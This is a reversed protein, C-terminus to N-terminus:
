LVEAATSICSNLEVCAFYQAFQPGPCEVFDAQSFLDKITIFRMPRMALSGAKECM